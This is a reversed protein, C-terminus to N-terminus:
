LYDPHILYNNARIYGNDLLFDKSQYYVKYYPIKHKWEKPPLIHKKSLIM